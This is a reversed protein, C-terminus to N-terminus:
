CINCRRRRRRGQNALRNIEETQQQITQQLQAIRQQQDSYLQTQQSLMQRMEDIKRQHESHIEDQKRIMEEQKKLEKAQFESRLARTQEKELQIIAQHSWAHIVESLCSTNEEAYLVKDLFSDFLEFEALDQLDKEYLQSNPINARIAEGFEKARKVRLKLLTHMVDIWKEMESSNDEKNFQNNIKNCLENVKDSVAQLHIARINKMQLRSTESLAIKHNPNILPNTQLFRLLNDHDEFEYKKGVDRRSPKPFTFIRDEHDLFFKCWEKMKEPPNTSLIEMYDHGTLESDSKTIILGTGSRLQDHDTFMEELRKISQNIGNGRGTDFESASLVLLIKFKNETKQLNQFLCDMLFSNIIEQKFGDTDEFGPCDCFVLNSVTISPNRTGSKFGSVVGEGDVEIKRGPKEIIRLDKGGMICAISSKGCGTVGMLIVKTKGAISSLQQLIEAQAIKVKENFQKIDEASLPQQQPRSM